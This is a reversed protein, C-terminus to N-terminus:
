NGVVMWTGDIFRAVFVGEREERITGTVLGRFTLYAVAECAQDSDRGAFVFGCRTYGADADIAGYAVDTGINFLFDEKPQPNTADYDQLYKTDDGGDVLQAGYWNFIFEGIENGNSDTKFAIYYSEVDDGAAIIPLGEDTELIREPNYAIFLGVNISSPSPRILNLDLAVEALKATGSANVLQPRIQLRINDIGLMAPAQMTGTFQKKEVPFVPLDDAALGAKILDAQASTILDAFYVGEGKVNIARILDKIQQDIDWLQNILNNVNADGEYFGQSLCNFVSAPDGGSTNEAGINSIQGLNFYHENEPTISCLLGLFKGDARAPYAIFAAAGSHLYDFKLIKVQTSKDPVVVGDIIAGIVPAGTDDVQPFTYDIISTELIDIGSNEEFRHGEAPVFYNDWEPFTSDPYYNSTNFGSASISMVVSDTLAEGDLQGLESGAVNMVVVLNNLNYKTASNEDRVDKVGRLLWSFAGRLTLDKAAVVDSGEPKYNLELSTFSFGYAVPYLQGSTPMSPNNIALAADPMLQQVMEDYSVRLSAEGVKEESFDTILTLKDNKLVGKFIIDISLSETPFDDTDNTILDVVRQSIVLQDAEDESFKLTLIKGSADFNTNFAHWQNESDCSVHTCSLYYGYIDLLSSTIVNFAPSVEDGIELLQQKYAEAKNRYEPNGFEQAASVLHTLMAKTFDIGNNYSDAMSESISPVAQTLKGSVLSQLELQFGAITSGVEVPLVKNQAVFYDNAATLIDKAISYWLEVTLVQEVPHGDVLKTPADKEYLQGINQSFQENLIRRFRREARNDLGNDYALQIQQLAAVLAGYRISAQLSASTTASISDLSAMNAPEVSIIDPIGILNSLQTNAKMIGYKSFYGPAQQNAKCDKATCVGTGDNVYTSFGFAGAMDTINNISIFQSEAAVELAASWLTRDYSLYEDDTTDDADPAENVVYDYYYESRYHDGFAVSIVENGSGQRISCGQPLQCQVSAVNAETDVESGRAFLIIANPDDYDLAIAFRGRVDTHTEVGSLAGTEEDLTLQGNVTVAVAQVEINEAKGSHVVGVVVNLTDPISSNISSNNGSCGVLVLALLVFLVISIKSSM